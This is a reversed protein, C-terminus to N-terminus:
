RHLRWTPSEFFGVQESFWLLAMIVIVLQIISKARQPVIDAPLLSILWCFVCVVIVFFVLGFLSM